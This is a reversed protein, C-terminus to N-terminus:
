KPRRVLLYLAGEGGHRPQAQAIAVIRERNGPEALWRPVMGRLVGGSGPQGKGTVVLVCRAGGAAAEALFRGLAQHAQEQTLGHLDLSREVAIQGRKLRLWQRRDLGVPRSPDLPPPPGAPSAAPAAPAAAPAKAPTPPSATPGEPPLPPRGDLPTAGRMAQRWLELEAATPRRARTM